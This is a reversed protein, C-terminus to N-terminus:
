RRFLLLYDRPELTPPHPAGVRLAHGGVHDAGVAREFLERALQGLREFRERVDVAEALRLYALEALLKQLREAVRAASKLRRRADRFGRGLAARGVGRAHQRAM